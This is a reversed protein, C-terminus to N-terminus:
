LGQAEIMGIVSRGAASRPDPFISYPGRWDTFAARRSSGKLFAISLSALQVDVQLGIAVIHTKTQARQRVPPAASDQQRGERDRGIDRRTRAGITRIGVYHRFRATGLVRCKGFGAPQLRTEKFHHAGGHEAMMRKFESPNFLIGPADFVRQHISEDSRRGYADRLVSRPQERGAPDPPVDIM